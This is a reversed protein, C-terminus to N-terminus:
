KSGIFLGYGIGGKEFWDFGTKLLNIMEEEPIGFSKELDCDCLKKILKYGKLLKDAKDILKKLAWSQDEYLINDFGGEKLIAQYEDISLAGAICAVHSIMGKLDEPLESEIIVDTIGVKGGNKLVRFMENIATKKNPFTCLACECIVADFTLDEFKIKEADSIEFNILKSFSASTAKEKAKELNKESLDIGTVHCGFRKAITIASNGPGCAIDLVRSKKNLELKEGLNITLKEGGPHFNEGLFKSVLDNEYFNVCCSKIENDELKKIDRIM